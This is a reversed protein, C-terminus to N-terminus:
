IRRSKKAYYLAHMCASKIHPSSTFEIESLNRMGYLISPSQIVFEIGSEQCFYELVGILKLPAKYEASHKGIIFDEAVLADPSAGRIFDLVEKTSRAEKGVSKIGGDQGLILCCLGTTVGPDVGVIVM